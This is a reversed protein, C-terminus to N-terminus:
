CVHSAGALRASLSALRHEAQKARLSALTSQVRLLESVPEGSREQEAIQESLKRSRFSEIAVVARAHEAKASLYLDSM